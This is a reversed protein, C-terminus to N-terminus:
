PTGGTPSTASSAATSSAAQAQAGATQAKGLQQAANTPTGTAAASADASAASPANGFEVLIDFKTVRDSGICDQSDQSAQQNPSTQAAAAAAGGGGAAGSDERRTSDAFRVRTVDDLNQMRVMMRAVAHHSFTCGTIAFAPGPSQQRVNGLDGGGSGEAQVDPSLTADLNLIWANTPIALSLQRLAREWDFRTTALTAIQQKRALQLDAFQGYPRLADAVQKAGQEQVQVKALEETRSNVKNSTLVLALVCVLAAGLAGLLIYVRVGSGAPGGSRAAGRREDLPILNVPRM